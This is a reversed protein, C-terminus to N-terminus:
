QSQPKIPVAWLREVLYKFWSNKTVLLILLKPGLLSLHVKVTSSLGQYMVLRQMSGPFLVKARVVLYQELEM